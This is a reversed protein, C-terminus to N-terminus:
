DQTPSAPLVQQAHAKCAKRLLTELDLAFLEADFLPSQRATDRLTARLHRLTRLTQARRGALTIARAVYDEDRHVVWDQLGVSHLLAQGQRGLMGPTALTLTPVGMWLAEATSTGGPYPFTDLLVDVDAYQGLYTSRHSPERLHVRTLDIGSAALQQEFVQRTERKALQRSQLLLTAQPAGTLIRRWARLVRENIKQLNQFCGFRLGTGQSLPPEAAVEPADPPVSMCLRTHPMFHVTETFFHQENPPVCIPDAIVGDMCPLGTSAFYGLWSLQLPAPHRLLAGARHHNTFGSLDLLVDLRDRRITDALQEDTLPAVRRWEGVGNRLRQTVADQVPNTAYAVLDVPRRQWAALVAELFYSVPHDTFDGSLLGIRLREGPPAALPPHAPTQAQLLQGHHASFQQLAAPDREPLYHACFQHASLAKLHCPDHDLARQYADMAGAIDQLDQRTRGISFHLSPDNGANQLAPELVALARGPQRFHRRLLGALNLRTPTHDPWRLLLKEMAERAQQHRQSSALVAAHASLIDRDDPFEQVLTAWLQAAPAWRHTRFYLTALAHRAEKHGPHTKLFAQLMPECATHQQQKLLTLAERLAPPYTSATGSRTSRARHNLPILGQYPKSQPKQPEEGM